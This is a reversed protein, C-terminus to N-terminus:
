GTTPPQPEAVSERSVSSRGALLALACLTTLLLEALIISLAPGVVGLRPILYWSLGAHLVLMAATFVGMLLQQGRAVLYHTLSYNVFAPVLSIALVQFVQVSEAYAPGYLFPILFPAVFWGGIALAMGAALLSLTARSGMSLAEGSRSHLAVTFAPFVAAMLSAPVLQAPEILRSAASFRAVAIEGLM